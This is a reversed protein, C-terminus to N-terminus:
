SAPCPSRVRTAAALTHIRVESKVDVLYQCFIRGGAVTARELANAREPVISKWGAPGTARRMDIAIVRRNPAGLDTRVLFVPGENGLVTLEAIDEDVIARIPAGVNPKLPDGLDAYLLRNKPDTGNSLTVVLYRGDDIVEAGVFYRPLERRWYILRDQGQATGVRHYPVQHDRLEAELAKGAPPEPFRAYYFGKGDKTWSISSFRFWRIVEPLDKGTALERVHVDAWDAGGQSLAYALYRGDPSPRLYALSVSGDASLANPDLLLERPATVSARRYLPSQEQLGSNQRYYLGGESLPLDTRPYNWLQTLREVLAARQPLRELYPLTVANEAAIWARTDTSGLDELWRYPDAVSRGHYADVVDCRRAPPFHPTETMM